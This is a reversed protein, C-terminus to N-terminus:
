GENKESAKQRLGRHEEIIYHGNEKTEHSLHVIYTKKDRACVFYNLFKGKKQRNDLCNRATSANMKDRDFVAAYGSPIGWFIKDWTSKIRYAPPVEDESVLKLTIEKMM